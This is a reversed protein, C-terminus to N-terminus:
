RGVKVGNTALKNLWLQYEQSETDLTAKGASVNNACYTNSVGCEPLWFPNNSSSGDSNVKTWAIYNDYVSNNLFTPVSFKGAANIDWIYLGVNQAAIPRGDPLLGSSVIRNSYIKSNIGGVITMGENSTSVVQNSYAETYGSFNPDTVVGDGILIGGGGFRPNSAPQPNYAGQVYNDHIRIPNGPIGSSEYLNINEEVLSKEPENIIENWAVEANAVQHIGNFQVMHPHQDSYAAQFGNNGDTPRGDINRFKNRLIKITDNNANNGVYARMYIGLTGQITNNEVDVNYM